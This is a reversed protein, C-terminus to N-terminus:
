AVAVRPPLWWSVRKQLLTQVRGLSEADTPAIERYVGNVVVTTWHQEDLIDDVAVCVKPNERMWEIKRGVTSFGVLSRDVPDFAFSIPVIYPQNRRACALRGVRARALVEDCEDRTLEHAVM